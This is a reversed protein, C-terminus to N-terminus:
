YSYHLLLGLAFTLAGLGWRLWRPISNDLEETDMDTAISFEIEPPDLM